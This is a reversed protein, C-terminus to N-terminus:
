DECQVEANGHWRVEQVLLCIDGELVVGDVECPINQNPGSSHVSAAADTELVNAM